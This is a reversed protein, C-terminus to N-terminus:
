PQVSANSVGLGQPLKNKASYGYNNMRLLIGVLLFTQGYLLDAILPAGSLINAPLVAVLYAGLIWLSERNHCQVSLKVLQSFLSIILFLGLLGGGVFGFLLLSEPVTAYADQMNIVQASSDFFDIYAVRNFGLGLFVISPHSLIASFTLVWGNLRAQVNGETGSIQVSDATYLIKEILGFNLDVGYSSLGISALVISGVLGIISKIGISRTDKSLLLLLFYIVFSMATDRSVSFLLSLLVLISAIGFLSVSILGQKKLYIGITFILLFYGGWIGHAGGGPTLRIDTFTTTIYRNSFGSPLAEPTWIDFGYVPYLLFAYHVLNLSLSTVGIIFMLRLTKFGSHYAIFVLPIYILLKFSRFIAGFDTHAYQSIISFLLLIAGLTLMTRQIRFKIYPRYSNFSFILLAILALELIYVFVDEAIQYKPMLPTILAFILVM